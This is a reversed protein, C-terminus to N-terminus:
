FPLAMDDPESDMQAEWKKHWDPRVEALRGVLCRLFRTWQVKNLRGLDTVGISDLYEGGAKGAQLLMEDEEATWDVM